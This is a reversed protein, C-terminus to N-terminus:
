LPAGTAPSLQRAIADLVIGMDALTTDLSPPPNGLHLVLQGRNGATDGGQNSDFSVDIVFYPGEGDVTAWTCARVEDPECELQTGAVILGRGGDRTVTIAPLPEAHVALWTEAKQAAAADDMTGGDIIKRKIVGSSLATAARSATHRSDVGGVQPPGVATIPTTYKVVVLAASEVDSFHKQVGGDASYIEYDPSEPAIRPLFRAKQGEWVSFDWLLNGDGGINSVFAIIESPFKDRQSAETIPVLPDSWLAGPEPLILPAALGLVQKLFVGSTADAAGSEYFDDTTAVVGYGAATFGHIQQGPDDWDTLRGEWCIRGLRSIVVHMNRRFEVPSELPGFEPLDPDLIGIQAANFGLATSSWTLRTVQPDIQITTLANGGVGVPAYCNLNYMVM